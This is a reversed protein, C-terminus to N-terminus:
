GMLKVKNNGSIDKQVKVVKRFSNLISQNDSDALSLDAIESRSHGNDVSSMRLMVIQDQRIAYLNLPQLNPLVKVSLEPIRAVVILAEDTAQVSLTGELRSILKQYYKVNWNRGNLRSNGKPKM